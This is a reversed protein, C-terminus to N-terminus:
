PTATPSGSRSNRPTIVPTGSYPPFDSISGSPSTLHRGIVADQHEHRGGLVPLPRPVRQGPGPQLADDALVHIVETSFDRPARARRQQGLLDYRGISIAAQLLRQAVLRRPRVERQDDHRPLRPPAVM